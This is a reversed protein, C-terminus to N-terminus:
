SGFGIRVYGDVCKLLMNIEKLSSKTHDIEINYSDYPKNKINYRLRHTMKIGKFANKHDTYFDYVINEEDALFNEMIIGFISRLCWSWNPDEHTSPDDIDYHQQWEDFFKIRSYCNGRRSKAMDVVGIYDHTQSDLKYIIQIPIM